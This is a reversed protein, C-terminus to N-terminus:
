MMIVFTHPRTYIQMVRQSTCGISFSYYYCGKRVCSEATGTASASDCEGSCPPCRVTFNFGPWTVSQTLAPWLLPKLCVCSLPQSIPDSQDSPPRQM